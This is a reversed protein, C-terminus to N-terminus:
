KHNIKKLVNVSEQLNKKKENPINLEENQKKEDEKEPIRMEQQEIKPKVNEPNKKGVCAGM